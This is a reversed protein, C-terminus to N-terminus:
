LTLDRIPFHCIRFQNDALIARSIVYMPSHAFTKLM